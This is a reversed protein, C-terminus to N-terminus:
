LPFPIEIEAFQSINLEQQLLSYFNVGLYLLILLSQHLM